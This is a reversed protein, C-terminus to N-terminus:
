SQCPPDCRPEPWHEIRGLLRAYRLVHRLGLYEQRVRERANCGLREALPRDELLRRVAAGFAGLDYPDAVLLGHVGDAIQDRIGGTAGAVIPRGKWMAETVTLGFGEHLSKQVVV